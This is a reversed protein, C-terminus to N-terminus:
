RYGTFVRHLAIRKGLVHPEAGGEKVIIRVLTLHSIQENVYNVDVAVVTIAPYQSLCRIAPLAPERQQLALSFPRTLELTDVSEVVVRMNEKSSGFLTSERDRRWVLLPPLPIPSSPIEVGVGARVTREGTRLICYYPFEKPTGNHHHNPNTDSHPIPVEITNCRGERHRTTSSGRRYPYM